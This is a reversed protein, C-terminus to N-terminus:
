KDVQVLRALWKSPWLLSMLIRADWQPLGAMLEHCLLTAPCM